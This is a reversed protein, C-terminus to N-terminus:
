RCPARLMVLEGGPDYGQKIALVGRDRYQRVRGRLDAQRGRCGSFAKAAGLATGSDVVDRPGSEHYECLIQGAERLTSILLEQDTM